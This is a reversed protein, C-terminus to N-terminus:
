GDGRGALYDEARQQLREDPPHVAPLELVRGYAERAEEESGRKRLLEALDYQFLVLDPWAEVARGLHHEALEWSAESLAENGMFLRGMARKIRSLSMVEYNLKGLLNHAGGHEPDLELIAHADEFMQQALEAAYGPAANMARRGHAAGRWYLGDVGEPMAAVARHGLELAPDLWRNQPRSGHELVGLVVAARTARWLVEYDDPVADLHRLLLAFAGEPDGAFYLDDAREVPSVVGAPVRFDLANPGLPGTWSPDQAASPGAGILLLLAVASPLAFRLATPLPPM